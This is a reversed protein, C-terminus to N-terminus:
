LKGWYLIVDLIVIVIVVVAIILICMKNLRADAKRQKEEYSEGYFYEILSDDDPKM